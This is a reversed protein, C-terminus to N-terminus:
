FGLEEEFQTLSYGFSGAVARVFEKAGGWPSYDHEFTRASPWDIGDFQLIFEGYNKKLAKVVRKNWEVFRRAREGEWGAKRAAELDTTFSILNDM